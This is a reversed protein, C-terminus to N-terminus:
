CHMPRQRRWRSGLMLRSDHDAASSAASTLSWPWCPACHDKMELVIGPLVAWCHRALNKWICPESADTSAREPLWGVAEHSVSSGGDAPPCLGHSGPLGGPSRPRGDTPWQGHQAEESSLSDGARPCCSSAGQVAPSVVAETSSITDRCVGPSESQVVGVFPRRGRKECSAAAQWAAEKAPTGPTEGSCIVAASSTDGSPGWQHEGRASGLMSAMDGTCSPWWQRSDGCM